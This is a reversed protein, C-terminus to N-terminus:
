AMPSPQASNVRRTGENSYHFVVFEEQLRKFDTKSFDSSYLRFYIFSLLNPQCKLLFLVHFNYLSSKYM